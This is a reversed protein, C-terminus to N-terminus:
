AQRLSQRLEDLARRLSDAADAQAAPAIQASRGLHREIRGVLEGAKPTASFLRVVRSDSQPVPLPDDLLLEAVADMREELPQDLLLVGDGVKAEDWLNELLLESPLDPDFPISFVNLLHRPPRAAAARMVWYGIIFVALAAIPAALRAPWDFLPALRTASWAAAAAPVAAALDSLRDLPHPKAMPM